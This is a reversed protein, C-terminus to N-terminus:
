HIIEPDLEPDKQYETLGFEGENISELDDDDDDIADVRWRFRLWWIGQSIFLGIELALIVVYLAMGMGDFEGILMSAMSFVAGASDMTLFIFNIGVVRGKRKALEYYPPLLGLSLIITAIIGFALDPSTNGDAYLPKLWIVFGVECGVWVAIFTSIILVINRVKYHFPPYYMSQVWAIGCFFCFLHPQIQFILYSDAVMFYIAMPIASLCWLFMFLPSFGESDKRKYLFYIQPILQVCWFVTGVIGLATATSNQQAM